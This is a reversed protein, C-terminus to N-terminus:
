MERKEKAKSSSTGAMRLCINKPVFVSATRPILNTSPHKLPLAIHSCMKRLFYRGAMNTSGKSVVASFLRPRTGSRRPSTMANCTYVPYPPLFIGGEGGGEGEVGAEHAIM